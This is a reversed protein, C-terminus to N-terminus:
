TMGEDTPLSELGVRGLGWAPPLRSSPRAPPRLNSPARLQTRSEDAQRGSAPALCSSLAGLSSEGAPRGQWPGEREERGSSAVAAWRSTISHEKQIKGGIKFGNSGGTVNQISALPWSRLQRTRGAHDRPPPPRAGCAGRWGRQSRPRGPRPRRLLGVESRPAGLSPGPPPEPM